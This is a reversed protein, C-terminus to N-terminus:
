AMILKPVSVPLLMRPGEPWWPRTPRLDEMPWVLLYYLVKSTGLGQYLGKCNHVVGRTEAVKGVLGGEGAGKLRGRCEKVGQRGYREHWIWSRARELPAKSRACFMCYEGSAEHVVAVTANRKRGMSATDLAPTMGRTSFLSMAPGMPRETASTAVRKVARVSKEMNGSPYSGRSGTM